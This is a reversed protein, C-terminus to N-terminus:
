RCRPPTARSVPLPAWVAPAPPTKRLALIYRECDAITKEVSVKRQDYHIYVYKADAHSMKNRDGSKRFFESLVRYLKSNNEDDGIINNRYFRADFLQYLTNWDDKNVGAAEPLERIEFADAGRGKYLYQLLIVSEANEYNKIQYEPKPKRDVKRSLFPEMVPNIDVMRERVLVAPIREKMYVLAQQMMGNKLCWRVIEFEPLKNENNSDIFNARIDPLLKCFLLVGSNHSDKASCEVADFARDIARATDVLEDVYCISMMRSFRRLLDCLSRIEGHLATGSREMGNFYACLTDSKGFSTFESIGTTLSTLLFTQKADEITKTGFNSYVIDKIAITRYENIKMSLLYLFSANRAGGTTEIYIADKRQIYDMVAGLPAVTDGSKADYPIQTIRPMVLHKEQCFAAIRQTFFDVATYEVEPLTSKQMSAQKEKGFAACCRAFFGQKESAASHKPQPVLTYSGDGCDYYTKKQTVCETSTLCLLEQIPKGDQAAKCLLYKVPAENTHAGYIADRSIYTPTKYAHQTLDGWPLTSLSLLIKNSM